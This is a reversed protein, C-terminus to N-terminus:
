GTVGEVNEESAASQMREFSRLSLNSLEALQVLTDRSLGGKREPVDASEAALTGWRSSLLAYVNEELRTRDIKIGAGEANRLLDISRLADKEAVRSPDCLNVDLANEIVVAIEERAPEVGVRAAQSFTEQIAELVDTGTLARPAVDALQGAVRGCRRALVDAALAKFIPPLIREDKHYRELMPRSEEYIDDICREERALLDAFLARAVRERTEPSFDDISGEVSRGNQRLGNEQAALV